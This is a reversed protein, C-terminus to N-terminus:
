ELNQVTSQAPILWCGEKWNQKGEVRSQLGFRPRQVGTYPLPPQFDCALIILVALMNRLHVSRLEVRRNTLREHWALLQQGLCAATHIASQM